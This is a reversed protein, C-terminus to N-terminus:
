KQRSNERLRDLQNREFNELIKKFITVLSSAKLGTAQPFMYYFFKFFVADCLISM